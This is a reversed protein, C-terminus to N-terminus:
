TGKFVPGRKEVFSTVGEKFDQSAAMEQQLQAELALQEEIRPYIWANLQRKTAAYAKTPGAALREVLEGVGAEFDEDPLVKAVLGSQLAQASTVREGLMAMQAARGAGARAAILAMAGGDPVLGLNVFGLLLYASEAAVALDCSLALSVGIGVAPGNIAAVVPKPMTRLGNLLPNYTQTLVSHVAVHGDATLPRSGLDRLDAGSSFARGAGTVCVARVADDAGVSRVADLLETGLAGNWANLNDPRNLRIFAALGRRQLEVTAGM